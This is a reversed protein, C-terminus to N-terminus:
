PKSAVAEALLAVLDEVTVVGGARPNDVLQVGYHNELIVMLEIADLSDIGLDGAIRDQPRLEGAYGSSAWISRRWSRCCTM